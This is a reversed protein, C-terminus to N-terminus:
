FAGQEPKLLLSQTFHRQNGGEVNLQEFSTLLKPRFVDDM